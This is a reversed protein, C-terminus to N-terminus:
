TNDSPQPEESTELNGGKDRTSRCEAPLYNQKDSPGSCKWAGTDTDFTFEVDMSAISPNVSGSDKMTAVYKNSSLQDKRIEKVYEGEPNVGYLEYIEPMRGTVAYHETIPTKMARLLSIAEAVQARSTYVDYAPILIVTLIGIVAIIIMLELLTFGQQVKTINM